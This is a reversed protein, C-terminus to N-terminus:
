PSTDDGGGGSGAAVCWHGAGGTAVRCAGGVSGGRRRRTCGAQRRAAEIRIAAEPRGPRPGARDRGAAPTGRGADPRARPISRPRGDLGDRRRRASSRGERWPRRAGGAAGGAPFLGGGGGLGHKPSRHWRRAAQGPHAYRSSQLGCQPRAEVGRADPPRMAGPRRSRASGGTRGASGSDM